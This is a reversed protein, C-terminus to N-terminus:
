EYTDKNLIKQEVIEYITRSIAYLITFSFTLKVSIEMTLGLDKLAIEYIIVGCFINFFFVLILPIIINKIFTIIM